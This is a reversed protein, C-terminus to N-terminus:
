TRSGVTTWESPELPLYHMGLICGQVSVQNAFRACLISLKRAADEEGNKEVELVDVHVEGYTDESFWRVGRGSRARLRCVEDVQEAGKAHCGGSGEERRAEDGERVGDDGDEKDRKTGKEEHALERLQETSEERKRTPKIVCIPCRVDPRQDSGKIPNQEFTPATARLLSALLQNSINTATTFRPTSSTIITLSDPTADVDRPSTPSVTNATRGFTFGM